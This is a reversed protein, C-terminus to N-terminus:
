SVIMSSAINSFEQEPLLFKQRLMNLATLLIEAAEDSSNSEATIAIENFKM